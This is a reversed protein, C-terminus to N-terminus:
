KPANASVESRKGIPKQLSFSSPLGSLKTKELDYFFTIKVAFFQNRHFDCLCKKRM